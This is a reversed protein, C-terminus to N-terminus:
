ALSTAELPGNNMAVVFLSSFLLHMHEMSENTHHMSEMFGTDNLRICLLRKAMWVWGSWLISFASERWGLSSHCGFIHCLLHYVFM